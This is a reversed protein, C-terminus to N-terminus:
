VNGEGEDQVKGVYKWMKGKLHTLELWPDKGQKRTRTLFAYLLYLGLNVQENISMGTEKKVLKAKKHLKPYLGINIRVENKRPM